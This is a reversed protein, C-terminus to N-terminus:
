CGTCTVASTRRPRLYFVEKYNLAKPIVYAMPSQYSYNAESMVVSEGSTLTMPLAVTAGKTLATLGSGRSWDVKPTNTIDATVSTVRLKLPATDYPSIITRGIDFIDSLDGTSVVEAQAVLDGVASAVHSSKREAILAQCLEVLGAYLLMMLPAILAFEVASMGKRDCGFRGFLGM